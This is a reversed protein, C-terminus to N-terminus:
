WQVSFLQVTRSSFYAERIRPLPTSGDVGGALWLLEECIATTLPRHGRVILWGGGAAKMLEIDSRRFHKETMTPAAVVIRNKADLIELGNLPFRLYEQYAADDNAFAEVDEILNAFLFVPHSRKELNQNIEHIPDRWNEGRQFALSKGSIMRDLYPNFYLNTGALVMAIVMQWVSNRALAVCLGAFIPLAVTGVIAYRSLALPAIGSYDALLICTLPVLAWLLVWSSRVWWFDALRKPGKSRWDGLSRGDLFAGGMFFVLAVALPLAIGLLLPSRIEALLNGRLSILQWNARRGYVNGMERVAPLSALATLVAISGFIVLVYKLPVSETRSAIVVYGMLFIAEVIFLWLVTAHTYIMLTSLLVLGTAPLWTKAFSTKGTQELKLPRDLTQLLGWFVIVQVLALLQLFVYPRAETAYFVFEPNFALLVGGTITALSSKTWDWLLYTGALVVAVGAILSVGRLSLDSDGFFQRFIWVAWFYFPSQNGASSRPAVDSWAGGTAWATHLEDLWLHDHSAIWFRLVGGLCALVIITLLCVTRNQNVIKVRKARAFHGDNDEPRQFRAM